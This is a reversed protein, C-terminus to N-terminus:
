DRSAHDWSGDGSGSSSASQERDRSHRRAEELDEPEDRYAPTAGTASPEDDQFEPQFGVQRAMPQRLATTEDDDDDSVEGFADYLERTTRPSM